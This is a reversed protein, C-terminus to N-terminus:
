RSPEADPAAAWTARVTTGRGPAATVAFVGNSAEARERMSSLGVGSGVGTQAGREAPDFGRGDDTVTLELTGGTRRFSVDARAAGSHRVVNTLAEEVVRYIVLGFGPSVQGDDVEVVVDFDIGDYIDAFERVLGTLADTIGANDISVPRLGQSLERVDRLVRQVMEATDRLQADVGDPLDASGLVSSLAFSVSLLEHTTRDHLERAISRREEEQVSLLRNSLRKLERESRQILAEKRKRETVDVGIGMRREGPLPKNAWITNRVEGSRTRIPFDQWGPALSAMHGRVQGRLEREPYLAAMLDVSEVDAMCWGTVRELERNILHITGDTDYVCIMVPINDVLTRLVEREVSLEEQAARREEVERELQRNSEALEATRVRVENETADRARSLAIRMKERETVERAVVTSVWQGARKHWTFSLELWREHGHSQPLQLTLGESSRRRRHIDRVGPILSYLNWSGAGLGLTREAAENWLLARGQRDVAVIADNSADFIERYNLAVRRFAQVLSVDGSVATATNSRVGGAVGVLLYGVGMYLLARRSWVFLADHSASLAALGVGLALLGLGFSFFYLLGTKTRLFGLLLIASAALLGLTGVLSLVVFAASLEGDARTLKQVNGSVLAYSSLFSAGVVLVGAVIPLWLQARREAGSGAGRVLSVAGALFFVGGGAVHVLQLGDGPLRYAPFAAAALGFGGGLGVILVALAFYLMAAVRTASMSRILQVFMVTPLFVLFFANLTLAGVGYADIGVAQTQVLIITAVLVPM